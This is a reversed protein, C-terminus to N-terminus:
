LLGGKSTEHTTLASVIINYNGTKHLHNRSLFVGLGLLLFSTPEPILTVNSYTEPSLFDISFPSEDGWHGTVFGYGYTGGTDSKSLGYGFINITGDPASIYDSVLGAHLNVNGSMLADVYVASGGYMNATAFSGRASLSSVTGTGSLNVSASDLAWLIYVEGGLVNATSFERADLTSVQGATVNVTSEDYTGISDASGGLMDVITDDNYIYVNNWEEGPLIQGSSTFTKDPVAHARGGTLVVIVATLLLLKTKM